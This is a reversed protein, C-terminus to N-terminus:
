AAGEEGLVLRIVRLLEGRTHANGGYRHDWSGNVKVYVEYRYIWDVEYVQIRHEGNEYVKM